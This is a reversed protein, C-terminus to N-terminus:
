AEVINPFSVEIALPKDEAESHTVKCVSTMPTKNKKTYTNTQSKKKKLNEIRDM